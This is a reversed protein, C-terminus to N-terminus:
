DSPNNITELRQKARSLLKCLYFDYLYFSAYGDKSTVDISWTGHKNEGRGDRKWATMVKSIAYKKSHANIYREPEFCDVPAPGYHLQSFLGALIIPTTSLTRDKRHSLHRRGISLLGLTM